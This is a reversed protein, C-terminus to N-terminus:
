RQSDMQNPNVEVQGARDADYIPVKISVQYPSAMEPTLIGNLARQASIIRKSIIPVNARAHRKKPQTLTNVAKMM